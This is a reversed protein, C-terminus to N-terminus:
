CARLWEAPTGSTATACCQAQVDRKVIKTDRSFTIKSFCYNFESVEEKTTTKLCVYQYCGIVAVVSSWM